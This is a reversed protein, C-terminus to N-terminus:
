NMIRDAMALQQDDKLSAQELFEFMKDVYSTIEENLKLLIAAPQNCPISPQPKTGFTFLLFLTEAVTECDDEAFQLM